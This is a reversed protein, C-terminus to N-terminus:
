DCLYWQMPSEWITFPRFGGPSLNPSNKYVASSINIRVKEDAVSEVYGSYIIGRDLEKCVHAGVKRMLPQERQRRETIERTINMDAQVERQEKATFQEATIFEIGGTPYLYGQSIKSFRDIVAIRKGSGSLVYAMGAKADFEYTDPHCSDTSSTRCVSTLITHRGPPVNVGTRTATGPLITVGEVAFQLAIRRQDTEVKIIAAGNGYIDQPVILAFQHLQERPISTTSCGSLSWLSLILCGLTRQPFRMLLGQGSNFNTLSQSDQIALRDKADFECYITFVLHYGFGVM